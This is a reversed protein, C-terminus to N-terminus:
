LKTLLDSKKQQFEDDTLIGQAHLNALKELTDISTTSPAQIVQVQAPRSESYATGNAPALSGTLIRIFDVLVWIGIGAGYLLFLAAFLMMGVSEELIAPLYMCAGIITSVVGGTQAIGQKTYGLYYRHVGCGGLFFALLAACLKSRSGAPSADTRSVTAEVNSQAPSPAEAVCAKMPISALNAFALLCFNLSISFPFYSLRSPSVNLLTSNFFTFVGSFVLSEFATSWTNFGISGRPMPFLSAIFSGIGCAISLALAILSFTKVRKPFFVSAFTLGIFVAYVLYSYWNYRFTRLGNTFLSLLFLVIMLGSGALGATKKRCVLLTITAAIVLKYLYKCFSSLFASGSMLRTPAVTFGYVIFMALLFGFTVLFISKKTAQKM